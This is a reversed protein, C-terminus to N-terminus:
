MDSRQDAGPCMWWLRRTEELVMRAGLSTDARTYPSLRIRGLHLIMAVGNEDTSSSARKPDGMKSKHERISMIFEGFERFDINTCQM